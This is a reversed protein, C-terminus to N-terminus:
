FIPTLIYRITNTYTGAASSFNVSVRYTITTEENTVTTTARAVIDGPATQSFGAYKTSSFQPTGTSNTSYGFGCQSNTICNGTWTTPIANTGTWDAITYNADQALLGSEFARMEYGNTANTSVTLVTTTNATYNNGSNLTNFVASVSSLTFSLTQAAGFDWNVNNGSNTNTGNTANIECGAYANSDKTDVYSVATCNTVKLYWYGGSTSSRFFVKTESAQGNWNISTATFTSTALFQVRVSGTTITSTTVTTTAGLIIGPTFPSDAGSSNTFTLTSFASIGSMTGTATQQATGNFTVAGGNAIFVGNNTWNGKVNFAASASATTTANASITFSNGNFNLTPNNTAATLIVGNSGNGVVVTGTATLTGSQITYTPSGSVPKFDINNYTSTAIITDETGRYSFTSGNSIFTGNIVYPTGSGNLIWTRTSTADLAQNSSLTLVNNITFNGTSTDTTTATSGSGLTLNAFTWSSTGGITGTGSVTFTNNTADTEQPGVVAFSTPSYQNNYETAIWDASRVINSIRPEDIIGNIFSGVGTDNSGIASSASTTNDTNANTFDPTGTASVENGNLYIKITDAGYDIVCVLYYWNGSNLTNTTDVSQPTQTDPARGGCELVNSAKPGMFARSINTPTGGNNISVSFVDPTNLVDFKVWASLTVASVNQVLSSNDPLKIWDNQGDFDLAGNVQGTATATPGLTSGNNGNSTSDTTSATAANNLHWVGKYNSDWVQTAQQESSTAANGYYMYLVTDTTTSLSPVKVWAQLQGTSTAFKEIEHPIKTTGNSSTFLIDDADAQVNSALNSDSALSVLTPFNTITSTGSIKTHDIVIQRRYTWGSGYWGSGSSMDIIGNGVIDGGNVTINASKVLTGATVTLDEDITTTATFRWKGGSGNLTINKFNQNGSAIYYETTTATFIINQGPSVTLAGGADNNWDGGISITNTAINLASTSSAFKLDGGVAAPFGSPNLTISGDPRYTKGTWIYLMWDSDVTLANSSENFHMDTDSCASGTNKDCVGINSNTIPGSDEHRVILRNKYIDLGSVNGSGLYRTVVAGSGNGGGGNDMWITMVTGTAPPTIGTIAFSGNSETNTSYATSGNVVLKVTSTTTTFGEDVYVTGSVSINSSDWQYTYILIGNMKAGGTADGFGDNTYCASYVQGDTAFMAPTVNKYFFFYEDSGNHGRPGGGDFENACSPSSTALNADVNITVGNILTEDGDVAFDSDSVSFSALLAANRITVTGTTEPITATATTLTEAQDNGATASQGAFLRLPALYGNGEGTYIYTIMLEASVGRIKLSSAKVNLTIIKGSSATASALETYDSSPILQYIIRQPTNVSVQGLLTYQKTPGLANSGVQSSIDATIQTDTANMVNIRFWAKQISVGTEPFFVTTSASSTATTADTIVAGIPYSVTRTSTVATSSAIYTEVTEGGVSSINGGTATTWAVELVTSSNEQFGAVGSWWGYHGLGISGTQAAEVIYSSSDIDTGQINVTYNVDTSANLYNEAGAEFWQAVRQTTTNTIEPINMNYNFLPCTSNKTCSGTIKSQTSGLNSSVTSELPYAVTNTISASADDYTYTIILKAKASNILDTDTTAADFWYGVQGSLTVSEGTYAALQAEATVDALLRVYMGGTTDKYQLVTTSQNQEVRGSGAWADPTCSSACADFALKHGVTDGNDSLGNLQAELVIFANKITVSSEALKFNFSSFSQNANGNQGTAGDGSYQGAIFEVTRARTGPSDSAIQWSHAEAFILEPQIGVLDKIWSQSNFFQLPGALYLEPSIDPADFQYRLEINDGAVADVRWDIFQTDNEASRRNNGPFASLIAFNAPLQERIAGHFDQNFQVSLKTTYPAAPYIRTPGAREVDFPIAGRVELTNQISYGNEGNTLILQYIGSETLAHRLSYDPINDAIKTNCLSSEQITRDRTSFLSREGSPSIIELKLRIGCLTRGADDLAAMQIYATENPFYYTKDTNMALVGLTFDKNSTYVKENNELIEVRLQYKGPRFSRGLQPIRIKIGDGTEEIVPQIDIKQELMDFVAATITRTPSEQAQATMGGVLTPPIWFSMLYKILRPIRSSLSEDQEPLPSNSVSPSPAPSQTESNKDSNQSSPSPTLEESPSPAASNSPFMDATAKSQGDSTKSPPPASDSLEPTETPNIDASPVPSITFTSSAIEQIVNPKLEFVKTDIVFEINEDARFNKKASKFLKKDDIKVHPLLSIEEETLKKNISLFRLPKEKATEISFWVSEIYISEATATDPQLMSVRLKWTEVEELLEPTPIKIHILTADDNIQEDSLSIESLTEYIDNGRSLEILLSNQLEPAPVPTLETTSTPTADLILNQIEPTQTPSNESISAASEDLITQERSQEQALAVSLMSNRLLNSKVYLTQNISSAQYSQSYSGAAYRPDLSPVRPELPAFGKAPENQKDVSIVRSQWSTNAIITNLTGLKSNFVVSSGDLAGGLAPNKTAGIDNGVQDPIRSNSAQEPSPSPLAQGDTAEPSPLPASEPSPTPSVSPSLLPSPEEAAIPATSSAPSATPSPSLEPTFNTEQPPESSPQIIPSATPEPSVELTPSPSQAEPLQTEAPIKNEDKKETEGEVPLASDSSSSVASESVMSSEPAITGVLTKEQTAWLINLSLEGNEAASKLEPSLNLEKVKNEFVLSISRVNGSIRLDEIGRNSSSSNESFEPDIQGFNIFASNTSNFEEPKSDENLERNLIALTNQWGSGGFFSDKSASGSIVGSPFIEIVLNKQTFDAIVIATFTFIVAGIFIAPVVKFIKKFDGFFLALCAFLIQAQRKRRKMLEIIASFVRAVWILIKLM